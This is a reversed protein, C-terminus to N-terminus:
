PSVNTAVIQEDWTKGPFGESGFLSRRIQSNAGDCGIIYPAELVKPGRHTEINIWAKAENQGISVVRHGWLIEACPYQGLHSCLIEGLQNLPLCVVENSHSGALRTDLGALYTGDLKRWCFSSPTFGKARVEDLIGARRLEHISPGGHHTARPQNDLKISQDVIQVPISQRALLLGLLLGAPGAGVIIVWPKQGSM